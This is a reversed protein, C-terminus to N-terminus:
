KNNKGPSPIDLQWCTRSGRDEFCNSDSWSQGGGNGGHASGCDQERFQLCCDGLQDGQRWGGGGKEVGLEELM